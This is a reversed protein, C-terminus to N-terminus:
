RRIRLHQTITRKNGARDTVTVVLKLKALQAGTLARRAKRTFQLTLTKTAGGTANAGGSWLVTKGKMGHRKLLRATTSEATLTATLKGSENSKVKVKLGGKLVNGLHLGSAM